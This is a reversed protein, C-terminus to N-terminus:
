IFRNALQTQISSNDFDYGLMEIDRAYVNAVIQRTANNYYHFYSKRRSSNTKALTCNKGLKKAIYAFDENLNEFFGIFDLKVKSKMDCIYYYQPRFHHWKWINDENVWAKVFDDFNDFNKLEHESWNKDKDKLGDAKLFHFASVLRDWPNRVITFKFYSFVETPEFINLYGDLTTHGGALNGYLAKSVSVGACKPVHVFISKTDDLPKYSYSSTTVINRKAQLKSFSKPKTIKFNLKRLELYLRPPLAKVALNRM